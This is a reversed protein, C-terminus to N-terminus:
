IFHKDQQVKFLFNFGVSAHCNAEKTQMYQFLWKGPFRSLILTIIYHISQIILVLAGLFIHGSGDHINISFTCCFFLFSICIYNLFIYLFIQQVLYWYFQFYELFKFHKKGWVSQVVHRLIQCLSQGNKFLIQVTKLFPIM